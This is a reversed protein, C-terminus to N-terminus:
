CNVPWRHSISTKRDKVMWQHHHLMNKTLRQNFKPTLMIKIKVLTPVILGLTIFDLLQVTQIAITKM